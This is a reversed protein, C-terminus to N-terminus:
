KQKRVVQALGLIVALVAYGTLSIGAVYAPYNAVPMETLNVYSSGIAQQVEVPIGPLWSVLNAGGAVLISGALAATFLAWVATRAPSARNLFLDYAALVAIVAALVLAVGGVTNYGYTTVSAKYPLGGGLTSVVTTVKVAFFLGLIAWVAAALALTLLLSQVASARERAGSTVSSGGVWVAAVGAGVVAVGTLVPPWVFPTPLYAYGLGREALILVTILVPMISVGTLAQNSSIRKMADLLCLLPLALAVVGILAMLLWVGITMSGISRAGGTLLWLIVTPPTVTWLAATLLLPPPYKQLLRKGAVAFMALGLASVLLFAEETRFIAFPAFSSPREWNAVIMIGGVLATLMGVAQGWGTNEKRWISIALGFLPATSLLFITDAGSPAASYRKIIQFTFALWLGGAMILFTKLENDVSLRNLFGRFMSWPSALGERGHFLAMIVSAFALGGLVITQSSISRLGVTVLLFLLAWGIAFLSFLLASKLNEWRGTPAHGTM